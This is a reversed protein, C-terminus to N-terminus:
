VTVLVNGVHSYVLTSTGYKGISRVAKFPFSDFDTSGTRTCLHDTETSAQLHYLGSQPPVGYVLGLAHRTSYRYQLWPPLFAEGEM